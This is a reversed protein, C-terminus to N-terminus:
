IGSIASPRETKGASLRAELRAVREVIPLAHEEAGPEGLAQIIAAQRLPSVVGYSTFTTLVNEHGLNQSWAM